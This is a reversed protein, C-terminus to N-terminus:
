FTPATVDFSSGGSRVPLSTLLTEPPLTRPLRPSTNENSTSSQGPHCSHLCRYISVTIFQGLAVHDYVATSARHPLNAWPSMIACLPPRETHYVSGLRCSRVCRHVSPTVFQGLTVHRRRRVVLHARHHSTGHQRHRPLASRPLDGPVQWGALWRTDVSEAVSLV